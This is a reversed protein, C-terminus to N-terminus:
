EERYDHNREEKREKKGIMTVQVSFKEYDEWGTAAM